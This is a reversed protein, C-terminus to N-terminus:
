QSALWTASAVYRYGTRGVRTTVRVVQAPVFPATRGSYIMSRTLRAGDYFFCRSRSTV